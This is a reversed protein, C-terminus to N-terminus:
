CKPKYIYYYIIFYGAIALMSSILINVIIIQTINHHFIYFSLVQVPCFLIYLYSLKRIGHALLFNEIFSVLAIPIMSIACLYILSQSQNFKDGYLLAILDYGFFWLICLFCSGIIFISASGKLLLNKGNGGLAKHNAMAPFIAVSFGTSLFLISKGIVSAIAFNGSEVPNFYYNVVVMDSQILFILGICTVVTPIYKNFSIKPIYENITKKLQIIDKLFYFTIISTLFCAIVLAALIGNIKEELLIAVYGLFIRLFFHLPNVISFLYLRNTTQFFTNNLIISNNIILLFSLLILQMISLNINALSLMATIIIIELIFFIIWSLRLAYFYLTSILVKNYPLKIGSLYSLIAQSLGALPSSLITFVSLFLILVGYDETSLFKAAGLQYLFGLGGSLVSSLSIILSTNLFNHKIHILNRM